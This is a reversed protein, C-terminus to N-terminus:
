HTSLDRGRDWRRHRIARGGRPKRHGERSTAVASSRRIMSRLECVDNACVRLWWGTRNRRPYPIPGDSSDGWDGDLFNRYRKLERELVVRPVGANSYSLPEVRPSEPPTPPMPPRWPTVNIADDPQGFQEDPLEVTPPPGVTEITIWDYAAVTKPADPHKALYAYMARQQAVELEPEGDGVVAM